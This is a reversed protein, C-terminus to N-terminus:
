SSMKKKKKPHIFRDGVNASAGLLVLGALTAFHRMNLSM